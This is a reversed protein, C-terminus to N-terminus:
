TETATASATATASPSMTLLPPLLPVAQHLGRDGGEAGPGMMGTAAAVTAVEVVTVVVGAPAAVTASM